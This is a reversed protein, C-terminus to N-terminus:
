KANKLGWERERCWFCEGCTPVYQGKIYNKHTLGIVDGECSRTLGLLDMANFYKYLSIVSDKELHLFPRYITVNERKIIIKDITITDLNRNQMGGDSPIAAPNKTVGVYWSDVQNHHVIYESFARLEIIDGSQNNGYEDIMNAGISGWEFEPPVFNIHKKFNINSFKNVLYNYVESANYEQWPKSKWNRITSIIHIDIDLKKDTIISCITYALIASDAGGSVAIAIKKDTTNLPFSINNINHIVDSYGNSIYEQNAKEILISM